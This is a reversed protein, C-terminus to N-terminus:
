FPTFATSSRLVRTALANRTTLGRAQAGGPLTDRRRPENATDFRIRGSAELKQAPDNLPKSITGNHVLCFIRGPPSRPAGRDPKVASQREEMRPTGVLHTGTLKPPSTMPPQWHAPTTPGLDKYIDM